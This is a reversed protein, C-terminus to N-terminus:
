THQKLLEDEKVRLASLREEEMALEYSFYAGCLM